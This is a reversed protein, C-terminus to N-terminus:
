SIKCIEFRLEENSSTRMEQWVQYGRVYYFGEKENKEEMQEFQCGGPYANSMHNRIMVLVHKRAANWTSKTATQGNSCKILFTERKAM